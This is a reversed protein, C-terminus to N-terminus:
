APCATPWMYGKPKWRVRGTSTARKMSALWCSWSCPSRRKTMVHTACHTLSPSHSGVRYLTQKFAVVHEDTAAQRVFDVVPMFSDYPHYLLADEQRLADFIKPSARLEPPYNPTFIPDKLDPRDLAYLEMLDSLGHPRDLTYIEDLPVKLQNALWDRIRTPMSPEVTLRVVFGFLRQELETEITQLLSEGGAARVDIDADRTIRFLHSSKIRKGPFLQDVNAEIVDELLVYRQRRRPTPTTGDADPIRIFRDIGPPIKMRAFHEGQRDEIAILMSLSLNSIHPFPHGADIALPTLIPFIQREFYRSLAKRDRSSLDAYTELVIGESKLLPLISETWCLRQRSSLDSVILKIAAIQEAPPMADRGVEATGAAVQSKLGAVRVMFFEDLNSSFIALFKIRELLPNREDLAEELVRRNFELWSLHQNLYLEPARLPDSQSQRPRSPANTGSPQKSKRPVDDGDVLAVSVSGPHLQDVRATLGM